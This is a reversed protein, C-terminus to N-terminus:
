FSQISDYGYMLAFSFPAISSRIGFTSKLAFTASTDGGYLGAARVIVWTILNLLYPLLYSIDYFTHYVWEELFLHFGGDQVLALRQEQELIYLLDLFFDHLVFVGPFRCFSCMVAFGSM